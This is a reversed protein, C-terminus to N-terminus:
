TMDVSAVFLANVRTLLYLKCDPASSVTPIPEPLLVKSVAASNPGSRATDDNVGVNVAESPTCSKTAVLGVVAADTFSRASNTPSSMEIVAGM